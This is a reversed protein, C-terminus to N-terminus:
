KQKEFKDLASAAARRIRESRDLKMKKLLPIADKADPGYNLISQLAVLSFSDDAWYNRTDPPELRGALPKLLCTVIERRLTGRNQTLEGLAALASQTNQAALWDGEGVAVPQAHGIIARVAEPDTPGIKALAEIDSVVACDAV